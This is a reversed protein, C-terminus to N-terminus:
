AASQSPNAVAAQLADEGGRHHYDIYEIEASSGGAPAGEGGFVEVGYRRNHRRLTGHLRDWLSLNQGYNVHFYKHHDDHFLTAPLGPIPLAFRVGSHQFIAVTQSFLLVLIVAGAHVPLVLLPLLTVGEFTMFEIPHMSFATFPTPTTNKHHHRHIAKFLAPRHYLRHSWYLVYDVFFFYAVGGLLTFPLSHDSLSLFVGGRGSQLYWALVGSCLSGTIINFLGVKLDYSMMADSPFRKAQCKWDAAEARRNVYYRRYLFTGLLLYVGLGVVVSGIMFGLLSPANQTSM